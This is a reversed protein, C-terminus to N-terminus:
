VILVLAGTTRRAELDAHAQAAASLPYRGHVGARLIGRQVADFVV